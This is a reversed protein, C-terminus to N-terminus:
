GPARPAVSASVPSHDRRIISRAATLAQGYGRAGAAGLRRTLLRPAALEQKLTKRTPSSRLRRLGKPSLEDALVSTLLRAEALTGALVGPALKRALQTTCPPHLCHVGEAARRADTLQNRLGSVLRRDSHLLARMDAIGRRRSASPSISSRPVSGPDFPVGVCTGIRSAFDGITHIQKGDRLMLEIMSRRDVHACGREIASLRWAVMGEVDPSDAAVGPCDPAPAFDGAGWEAWGESFAAHPSTRECPDNRTRYPFGSVESVFGDKGLASNRITHAFEHTVYAFSGPLPGAPYGKPWRLNTFETFPFGNTPADYTGVLDTYPPRRGMLQVYATYTKRMGLWVACEPSLVSLTGYDQLPRDAQNTNGVFPIPGEPQGGTLRVGQGDDFYVVPAYNYRPDTSLEVDFSWEGDPGTFAAATKANHYGDRVLGGGPAYQAGGWLEVRANALPMVVGRDECVYRGKFTTTAASASAPVLLVLFLSALWARRM